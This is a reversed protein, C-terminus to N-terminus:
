KTGGTVMQVAQHCTDCLYFVTVGHWGVYRHRQVTLIMQEGRPSVPGPVRVYDPPANTPMSVNHQCKPNDCIAM